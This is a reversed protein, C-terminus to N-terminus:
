LAIHSLFPELLDIVSACLWLCLCLACLVSCMACLVYCMACPVYCMACLVYCLACVCVCLCVSMFVCVCVPIEGPHDFNNSARDEMSLHSLEKYYSDHGLFSVHEEGLASIIARALTTKGSASGGAIGVVVPMKTSMFNSKLQAGAGDLGTKGEETKSDFDTPSFRRHQSVYTAMSQSRLGRYGMYQRYQMYHSYGTLREACSLLAFLALCFHM